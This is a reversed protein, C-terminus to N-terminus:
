KKRSKSVNKVATRATSRSVKGTKASSKVTRARQALTKGADSKASKSAQPNQLVKAAKTATKPSVTKKATM